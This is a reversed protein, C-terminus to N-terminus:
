WAPGRIKLVRQWVPDSISSRWVGGLLHRFARYVRAENEIRDIFEAGHRSLLDELWGAALVAIQKDTLPRRSLEVISLWAVDPFEIGASVFEVDQKLFAEVLHDPTIKV